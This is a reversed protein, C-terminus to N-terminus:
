PIPTCDIEYQQPGFTSFGSEEAHLIFVVEFTGKNLGSCTNSVSKTGAGGFTLYDKGMGDNGFNCLMTDMSDWELEVLGPGNTTIETTVTLDVPCDGNSDQSYSVDVGTVAFVPKATAKKAPTSTQNVNIKVFIRAFLVGNNAKMRWYGTYTGSKSPAQLQVEFKAQGGPAVSQDLHVYAPGGMQDGSAFVLRYNKDWTCSGTNRLVWSKTFSEGATFSTDDPVTESILLAQYCPDSSQTETQVETATPALIVPAAQPIATAPSVLDASRAQMTQEVATAIFDARSQVTFCGM